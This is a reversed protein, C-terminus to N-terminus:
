EDEKIARSRRIVSQSPFKRHCLEFNAFYRLYLFLMRSVEHWKGRHSHMKRMMEM